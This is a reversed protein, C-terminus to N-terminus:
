TTKIHCFLSHMFSSFVKVFGIGSFQVESIFNYKRFSKHNFIYAFNEDFRSWLVQVKCPKFCKRLEYKRRSFFLYRHWVLLWCKSNFKLIKNWTNWHSFTFFYINTLFSSSSSSCSFFLMFPLRFHLSNLVEMHFTYTYKQSRIVFKSGLVTSM